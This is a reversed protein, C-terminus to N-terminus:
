KTMIMMQTKEKCLQITMLIIKVVMEMLTQTLALFSTLQSSPCVIDANDGVGDGDADVSESGDSPFLDVVVLSTDYANCLATEGDDLVVDGNNPIISDPVDDDDTDLSACPDEPFADSHTYTSTDCGEADEFFEDPVGDSDSDQAACNDMLFMDLKLMLNPNEDNYATCAPSSVLQDPHGDGDADLSACPDEPFADSHTYTSTDCGEANAFFENPVGDEDSDQAACNDMPFMDEILPM